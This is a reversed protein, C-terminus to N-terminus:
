KGEHKKGEHKGSLKVVFHGFDTKVHLNHAIVKGPNADVMHNHHQIAADKSTYFRKADRMGSETGDKKLAHLWIGTEKKSWIELLKM